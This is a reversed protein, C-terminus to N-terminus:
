KLQLCGTESISSKESTQLHVRKNISHMRNVITRSNANACAFTCQCHCLRSLNPVRQCSGMWGYSLRNFNCNQRETKKHLSTKHNYGTIGNAITVGRASWRTQKDGSLKKVLLGIAWNPTTPANVLSRSCANNAWETSKTTCENFSRDLARFLSVSSAATGARSHVPSTNTRDRAMRAVNRLDMLLCNYAPQDVTKMRKM